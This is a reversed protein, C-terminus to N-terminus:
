EKLGRLITAYLKDYIALRERDPTENVEGLVMPTASADIANARARPM